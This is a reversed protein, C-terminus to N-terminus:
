KTLRFGRQDLDVFVKALQSEGVVLNITLNQQGSASQKTLNGSRVLESLADSTTRDIVMEGSTLRAPFSDNPFNPPTRKVFGQGGEAFFSDSLGLTAASLISGVAGGGGGGGGGGFLGGGFDSVGDKVGQIIGDVLAKVIEPMRSMLGSAMEIGMFPAKGILFAVLKEMLVPLKEILRNMLKEIIIDADFLVDIIGLVADAIGSIFDQLMNGFAESGQTMADLIPGTIKSSGPGLFAESMANGAMIVAQRGGEAGGAVLSSAGAAIGLNKQERAKDLEPGYFGMKDIDENFKGIGFKGLIAGFPDAAAKSAIQDIAKEKEIQKKYRETNIDSLEKERRKQEQFSDRDLKAQEADTKRNADSRIKNRAQIDAAEAGLSKFDMPQGVAQSLTDEGFAQNAATEFFPKELRKNEVPAGYQRKLSEENVRGWEQMSKRHEAGMYVLAAVVSGIAAVSGLLATTTVGIAGATTNLVDIVPKWVAVFKVAALSMSAMGFTLLSVASVVGLIGASFDVLTENDKAVNILETLAKAGSSISPAFRSGVEEALNELANKMQILSGTGKAAAEAQGGFQREMEKMIMEQARMTNGTEVLAKVMKEQDDTFKVGQRSLASLGQLPDSLAKGLTRMAEPVSIGTVAAMDMAAKTIQPIDTTAVNAFRLITNIGKQIEEDDFTSIESLSLALKAVQEASIEAVRGTSKLVANTQNMVKESESFAKVTLAIAGATAASVIGSYKAVDGLVEEFAKVEKKSKAVADLFNKAEGNIKILLENDKAM